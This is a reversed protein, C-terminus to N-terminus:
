LILTQRKRTLFVIYLQSLPRSQRNLQRKLGLRTPSRAVVKDRYIAVWENEYQRVLEDAHQAFYESAEEFPELVRDLKRAEAKSVRELVAPM